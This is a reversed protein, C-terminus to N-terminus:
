KLSDYWICLDIGHDDEKIRHEDDASRIMDLKELAALGLAMFVTFMAFRGTGRVATLPDVYLRLADVIAKRVCDRRLLFSYGRQTSYLEPQACEVHKYQEPFIL